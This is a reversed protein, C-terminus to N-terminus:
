RALRKVRRYTPEAVLDTLTANKRKMVALEVHMKKALTKSKMPAFGYVIRENLTKKDVISAGATTSALRMITKMSQFVERGRKEVSIGRIWFLFHQFGNPAPAS